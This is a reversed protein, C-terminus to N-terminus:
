YSTYILSSIIRRSTINNLKTICNNESGSSYINKRCSMISIKIRNLYNLAGTKLSEKAM